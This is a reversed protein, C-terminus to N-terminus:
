RGFFYAIGSVLDSMSMFFVLRNTPTRFVKWTVFTVIVSLAGLISLCATFSAAAQLATLQHSDLDLSAAMSTVAPTPAPLITSPSYSLPVTLTPVLSPLTANTTNTWNYFAGVTGNVALTINM